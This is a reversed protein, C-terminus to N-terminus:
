PGGGSTYQQAKEVLMGLDGYMQGVDAHGDPYLVVAETGDRTFGVALEAYVDTVPIRMVVALNETSAVAAQEAMRSVAIVHKGDASFQIETCMAGTRITGLCDGTTLDYLALNEVYAGLALLNGCIAACMRDYGNEPIVLVPEPGEKARFVDVNGGRLVVQWEGDPSVYVMPMQLGNVPHLVYEQGDHLYVVGPEEREITMWGEDTFFGFSMGNWNGALPYCSTLGALEDPNFGARTEVTMRPLDTEEEPMLNVLCGGSRLPIVLRGAWVDFGYTRNNEGSNYVIERDHIRYVQLDAHAAILTDPGAFAVSYLTNGANYGERWLEEGGATEMLTFGETGRTIVLYKGDPSLIGGYESRYTEELTDWLLYVYEDGDMYRFHSSDDPEDCMYGELELLVKGNETDAIWIHTGDTWAGRRGTRQLVVSGNTRGALAVGDLVTLKQAFPDYLAASGEESQVPVQNGITMAHCSIQWGDPVKGILVERGDTSGRFDLTGDQGYRVVYRSDPTLATSAGFWGFDRLTYLREGTVSSYVQLSNDSQRCAILKGDNSLNASRHLIGNDKLTGIQSYVEPYMAAELAASVQADYESGFIRSGEYAQLAYTMGNGIEQEGTFRVSKELLLAAANRATANRQATLLGNQYVAYGAFGAVVALVSSVLALGRRLAREKERRKLDNFNLNLMRAVIRLKETKLQKRLNGRLDAALPETEELGRAADAETIQHPYSDKPEGSVLVPIIRERRGLSIFFDVERMCWGSVPLDPTCIVILWESETLAKKISSGLDDALPLEDQDRFCRKLKSVGTKKRIERPIRYTELAKQVAKAAAADKPLHRYSIFASYTTGM